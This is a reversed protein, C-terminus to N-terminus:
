KHHNEIWYSLNMISKTPISLKFDQDPATTHTPIGLTNAVFMAYTDVGFVMDAWILDEILESEQSVFYNIDSEGLNYKSKNESPHLRLRLNFQYNRLKRLQVLFNTMADFEDFNFRGQEDEGNRAIPETLYLLNKQTKHVSFSDGAKVSNFRHKMDRIYYNEQLKIQIAPFVNKAKLYAHIDSVWIESPILDRGPRQFRERYNVWHDLYCCVHVSQSILREVATFEFNNIGIGTIARKCDKLIVNLNSNEIRGLIREFIGLAPQELCYIYQGPNNLIYSAIMNAGGAHKCVVGTPGQV